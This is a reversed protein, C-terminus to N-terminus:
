LKRLYFTNDFKYQIDFFTFNLTILFFLGCYAFALSNHHSNFAFYFFCATSGATNLGVAGNNDLQIVTPLDSIRELGCNKGLLVPFLLM